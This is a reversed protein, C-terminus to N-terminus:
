LSIHPASGYFAELGPAAEIRSLQVDVVATRGQRHADFAATLADRLADRRGVPLVLLNPRQFNLDADFAFGSGPGAGTESPRAHQQWQQELWGYSRNNFVVYIVPLANDTATCLDSRFLNFAGDGVLAVVTSEPRALKVGVAAAAGFGLTTQESPVVCRQGDRLAFYPFFYSWMDALGNEHVFVTDAPAEAQLAQLVDAAELRNRESLGGLREDCQAHAQRRLSVIQALWAQRASAIHDADASVMAPSDAPAVWHGACAAADGLLKESEIRHSFNAPEVDVQVWRARPDVQHLLALATEELRSGLVVLLDAQSWLARLAEATYIGALGCFLRHSEAVASRGSATTFLAAGCREALQEYLGPRGARLAGGGLLLLPRKAHQLRHWVEQLAARKPLSTLRKPLSVPAEAKGEEEVQPMPPLDEPLELYVPGPQGNLALFAARQLAWALREAREVRYSWKVLPRVLAMQDAEQFAGSGITGQATGTALLLVPVSLAQCELLGTLANGLAPGKGVVCVSLGGSALSHGGAMFLANRQDRTLIWRLGHRRAAQLAALDDNPLGLISRVGWQWLTQAVQDWVGNAM